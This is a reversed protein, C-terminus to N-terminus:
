RIKKLFAEFKLYSLAEVPSIGARSEISITHPSNTNM